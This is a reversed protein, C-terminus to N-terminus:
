MTSGDSSDTTSTSARIKADLESTDKLLFDIDSSTGGDLALAVRSFVESDDGQLAVAISGPVPGGPTSPVRHTLTWALVGIAGVAVVAALRGFRHLVMSGHASSTWSSKAASLAFLTTTAMRDEFGDPAAEREVRALRDLAAQTAVLDADLTEFTNNHDTNM